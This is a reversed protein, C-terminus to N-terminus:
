TRGRGWFCFFLLVISVFYHRRLSTFLHATFHLSTFQHDQTSHTYIMSKYGHLQMYAMHLVIKVNAYVM